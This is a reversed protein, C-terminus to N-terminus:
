CVGGSGLVGETERECPWRAPGKDGRRRIQAQRIIIFPQHFTNCSYTLNIACEVSSPAPRLITHLSTLATYIPCFVNGPHAPCTHLHPPYTSPPCSHFTSRSHRSLLQAKYDVRTHLGLRICSQRPYPQSLVASPAKPATM